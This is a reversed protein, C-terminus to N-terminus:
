LLQINDKHVLGIKGNITARVWESDVTNQVNILIDGQCFCLLSSRDTQYDFLARARRSQLSPRNNKSEYMQTRSSVKNPVQGDSESRVHMRPKAVPQTSSSVVPPAPPPIAPHVHPPAAHPVHPSAAPPIHPSAASPLHPSGAPPVHPSAAPSATHSEDPLRPGPGEFERDSPLVQSPLPGPQGPRATSGNRAFFSTNDRHPNAPMQSVTPPAPPSYPPPRRLSLHPRYKRLTPVGKRFEGSGRAAVSFIKQHHHILIEVVINQFKIDLLAAVSEHEARLLGPGFCVALNAVPMRNEQSRAAVKVLHQIVLHLMMRNEEPLDYVLGHISTLRDEETELKAATIFRQHLKFTMLPEHLLRLYAKVTSCLARVDWVDDNEMNLETVSRCHSLQSLLKQVKATSAATRYLGEELLGKKEILEFCMTVFEFGTKNLDMEEQRQRHISSKDYIPEQGDMATIWRKRNNESIAQLSLIGLGETEVDFCFRKDTADSRKRVCSRVVATEVEGVNSGQKLPTRNEFTQKTLLKSAHEYHCYCRMWSMGFLQKELVYLYGEVNSYDENQEEEALKMKEKLQQVESRTGEFRDRTPETLEFMKREQAEQVTEVYELSTQYFSDQAIELTRDVERIQTEKKKTSLTAHKDLLGYYRESEKEFKKRLDRATELRKRFSELPSILINPANEMLRAREEDMELLLHSFEKLSVVINNEDDTEADGILQFKYVQLSQSFKVQANSLEKSANIIAKGQKILDKVFRSTRDLEIEHKRITERFRPGDARCDRFELTPLGM